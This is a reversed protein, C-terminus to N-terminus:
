SSATEAFHKVRLFSIRQILLRLSLHWQCFKLFVSYKASKQECTPELTSYIRKRNLVHMVFSASIREQSKRVGSELSYSINCTKTQLREFMKIGPKVFNM